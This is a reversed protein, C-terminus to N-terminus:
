SCQSPMVRTPGISYRVVQVRDMRLIPHFPLHLPKLTLIPCHLPRLSTTPRLNTHPLHDVAMRLHLGQLCQSDSLTTKAITLCSVSTLLHRVYLRHLTLLCEVLLMHVAPRIRSASLSLPANCSPSPTQRLTLYSTTRSQLTLCGLPLISLINIVQSMLIVLSTRLM